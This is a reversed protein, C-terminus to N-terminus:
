SNCRRNNRDPRSRALPALFPLRLNATARKRAARNSYPFALSHSRRRPFFRLFSRVQNYLKVFVNRYEPSVDRLIIDFAQEGVENLTVDVHEQVCARLAGTRSEAVMACM